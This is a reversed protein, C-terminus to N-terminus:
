VKILFKRRALDSIHFKDSGGDAYKLVVYRESPRDISVVQRDRYATRVELGRELLAKLLELKEEPRM